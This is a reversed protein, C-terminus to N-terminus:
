NMGIASYAGEGTLFDRLVKDESARAEDPTGVFRMQGDALFAIRDAVTFCCVIDHTVVVSTVQLKRQLNRILLSIRNSNIPDLGTTPEDYLIASPEMAISRALAVRKKMGGSLESPMKREIGALDVLALKDAVARMIEERSMTTHERLGYSVNDFVDMSDFLAGGQFLMGLRKRIPLLQRQNYDTIEEGEVLVSGTDPKLLGIIHRLLVSKGSGSGGVVVVTEGCHIALDIGRLVQKKGFSKEIGRLEVFPIENAM